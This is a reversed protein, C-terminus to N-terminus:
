SSGAGVPTGALPLVPAVPSRITQASSGTRPPWPGVQVTYSEVLPALMRRLEEETWDGNSFEALLLELEAVLEHTRENAIRHLDWSRRVLWEELQQLPIEGALYRALQERIERDVLPEM